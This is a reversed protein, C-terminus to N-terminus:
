LGTQAFETTLVTKTRPTYQLEFGTVTNPFTITKGDDSIRAVGVATNAGGPPVLLTASDVGLVYSGVSGATGSATVELAVLAGVGPLTEGTDLADIGTIAVGSQILDANDGLDFSATATVATGVIRIVPAGVALGVLRLADALTNLDAREVEEQITNEKTVTM